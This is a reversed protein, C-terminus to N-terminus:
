EGAVAEVTADVCAALDILTMRRNRPSGAIGAHGGADPGWLSQVIDCASLDGPNNFSVTIAGTVTNFAVLTEHSVGNPDTYLHNVFGPGCRVLVGDRSEVFSGTNLAEESERLAQGEALLAEDDGLIYTLAVHAAVIYDSIDAVSGDRPAFCRNAKSWAWFAHLRAEDEASANAEALKHAGNLDMFAALRWFSEYGETKAGMLAFIGGLTDLDVHSLGIAEIDLGEFNDYECPAPNGARPGHHALTVESGEVCDDGYEAEVTASRYPALADRLANPDNSLLYKMAM